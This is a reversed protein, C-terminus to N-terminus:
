YKKIFKHGNSHGYKPLAQRMSNYSFNNEECFAKLKKIILVEGNPNILVWTKRTPNNEGVRKKLAVLYKEAKAKGYKRVWNMGKLTDSRKKNLEKSQKKGLRMNRNIRKCKESQKRGYMPNKDGILCEGGDTLNYGNPVKTKLQKIFKIELKSLEKRTKAKAIIRWEFNEPGHKRLASHFYMKDKRNNASGIHLCKRLSLTLKTQGIYEKGNIKNIAGYIIMCCVRYKNVSIRENGNIEGEEGTKKRRREMGGNKTFYDLDYVRRRNKKRRKLRGREGNSIHTRKPM